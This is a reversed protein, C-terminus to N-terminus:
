IEKCAVILDEEKKFAFYMNSSACADIWSIVERRNYTKSRERINVIGCLIQMWTELSTEYDIRKVFM